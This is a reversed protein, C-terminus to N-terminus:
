NKEVPLAAIKKQIAGALPPLSAQLSEYFKKQARVGDFRGVLPAAQLGAKKLWFLDPVEGPRLNQRYFIELYNDRALKLLNEAEAGSLQGAMKELALGSGFQARSRVSIDGASGAGYTHAYANTAAVFDGMQMQCDAIEGWARAGLENTPNKQIIQAFLNTAMQMNVLAANTAGTDLHMLAAGCAFRAQVGLLEDTCNTDAILRMFYDAADKYGTRGMAARGAMLQAPYFLPSSKWTPNQFVAEYNTEAGIFESVRFYHEAIWWQAAPASADAPNQAVFQTFQRLAMAENGAHFNAQALAYEAQPRLSNTPCDRLWGEYNTVAASWNQEQEFTRALALKLQPALPGGSFKPALKEFLARADVPQVLSEGFLLASGQGLEGGSFIEFVEAFAAAAGANDNLELCARLSQYLARGGLDRGVSAVSVQRYNELAGRFDKQAYLVDGTKFKAVALDEASLKNQAAQFDALAEPLNGALWECWGRNLLAKGVLSSNPNKKLLTDLAERAAALQNTDSHLVSEKLRLEGLSLLAIDVQASAPFQKIFNALLGEAEAFQGQGAALGAIKWVAERQKEDPTNAGLNEQYLAIADGARGLKELIGARLAASAARHTENKEIQAIQALSLAAALAADLDGASQKTQCLLYARQWDLEPKLASPNILALQAAAGTFDRQEFKAQALLLRGRVVLENAADLEAKKTFVSNADGLLASLSPWDGLKEYAAAAEVAARLRLPSEPFNKMLSSFSEAAASFNNASFQAEGTWLAFQDQLNGALARHTDLLAAAAAFKKQNFQAQAQLLVALPANTSKHFKKIFQDFGTEARSWMEAQFAESAAAFAREEHSAAFVQGSGLILLLWLRLWRLLCVM